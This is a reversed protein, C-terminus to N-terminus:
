RIVVVERRILKPEIAMETMANYIRRKRGWCNRSAAIISPTYNYNVM